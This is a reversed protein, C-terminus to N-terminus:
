RKILLASQNAARLIYTGSPLNSVDIKVNNTDVIESILLQGDISYIEINQLNVTANVNVYDNAPNPYIFLNNNDVLINGVGTIIDKGAVSVTSHNGRWDM